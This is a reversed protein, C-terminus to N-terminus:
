GAEMFTATITGGGTIAAAVNARWYRFAGGTADRHDNVGRDISVSTVPVWNTGDQSAEMVVVGGTVTGTRYIVMTVTSVATTFDVTTGATVNRGGDISTSATTSPM